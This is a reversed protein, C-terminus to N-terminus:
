RPIAGRNYKIIQKKINFCKVCVYSGGEEVWEGAREDGYGWVPTLDVTVSDKMKDYAAVSVYVHKCDEKTFSILAVAVVLIVIIKKM